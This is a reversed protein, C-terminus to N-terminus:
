FVLTWAPLTWVLTLGMLLPSEQSALKICLQTRKSILVWPSVSGNLLRQETSNRLPLCWLKRPTGKGRRPLGIAALCGVWVVLEEPLAAEWAPDEGLMAPGSRKPVLVGPEWSTVGESPCLGWDRRKLWGSGLTPDGQCGWACAINESLDHLAQLLIHAALAKWRSLWHCKGEQSLLCHPFNPPGGPRSTPPLWITPFPFPSALLLHLSSSLLSPSQAVSPLEWPHPWLVWDALIQEWAVESGGEEWLAELSIRPIADSVLGM